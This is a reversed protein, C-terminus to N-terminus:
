GLRDTIQKIDKIKGRRSNRRFPIIYNIGENRESPTSTKLNVTNYTYISIASDKKGPLKGKYPYIM